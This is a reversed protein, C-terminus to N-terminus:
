KDESRTKMDEEMNVSGMVEEVCYFIRGVKSTAFIAAIMGYQNIM